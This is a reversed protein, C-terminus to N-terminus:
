DTASTEGASEADVARRMLERMRDARYQADVVIAPGPARGNSHPESGEGADDRRRDPRDSAVVPRTSSGVRMERGSQRGPSQEADSDREPQRQVMGSRADSAWPRERERFHSGLVERSPRGLFFVTNDPIETELGYPTGSYRSRPFVAHLAGDVRMYLDDRDPARYLDEFAQPRDLRPSMVRLSHSIDTRDIVTQDLPQFTGSRDDGAFAAPPMWGIALVAALM